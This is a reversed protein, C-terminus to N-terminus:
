LMRNGSKFIMILRSYCWIAPYQVHTFVVNFITLIFLLWSFPLMGIIGPCIGSYSKNKNVGHIAQNLEYMSFPDDLVPIYPVNNDLDVDNIDLCNEPNLLNEVHAKFTEENPQEFDRRNINGKWNISNWLLRSDNMQMIRAWRPQTQDWENNTTTEEKVCKEAISRITDCAASVVSNPEDENGPLPPPVDQMMRVFMDSNVQKYDVSKKLRYGSVPSQSHQSSGLAAARQILQKPSIINAANATLTISLPAHDSGIVEQHVRFDQIMSLCQRKSICLDIESLWTNRRKFTLNGNYLQGNYKLNNVIVMENNNCMNEIARGHSNVIADRGGEFRYLYGDENKISPTGVRANFDGLVIINEQPLTHAAVTGHQAVSFYPSDEPPVYVGGIKIRPSGLLTVWIQGEDDTDVYSVDSSLACKVLMVVGGRHQGHQSVNAYVDFGPININFYMKTELLFVIDFDTIFRLISLDELKDRLGAINWACM